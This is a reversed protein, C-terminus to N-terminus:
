VSFYGKAAKEVFPLSKQEPFKEDFELMNLAMPRATYAPDFYIVDDIREPPIYSSWKDLGKKVMGEVAGRDLQKRDFQGLYHKEIQDLAEAAQPMKDEGPGVVERVIERVKEKVCGQRTVIMTAAATALIAIMWIVNKKPM